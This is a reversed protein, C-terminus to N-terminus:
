KRLSCDGCGENVLEYVFLDARTAGGEFTAAGLGTAIIGSDNIELDELM